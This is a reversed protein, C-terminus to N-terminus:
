YCNGTNPHSSFTTSRNMNSGLAMYRIDEGLDGPNLGGGGAWTGQTRPLHIGAAALANLVFNTCNNSNLDYVVNSNQFHEMFQLIQFFQSNTLAFEISINYSRESDNHLQGASNPSTPYVASMPYFGVNRTINGSPKVQTLTLFTHGVFILGSGGLATWSQRTGPAPQDVCLTVKYQYNSGPLNDFCKNYDRINAIPNNGSELVIPDAPPLPPTGSGGTAPFVDDTYAAGDLFEFTAPHDPFFYTDCGAFYSWYEYDGTSPVYNYGSIEYCVTIFANPSQSSTSASPHRRYYLATDLRQLAKGKRVLYEKILNGRLDEVLVLGQFSKSGPHAEKFPVFRVIELTLSQQRRYALLFSSRNLPQLLGPNQNSTLWTVGDYALPVLLATTSKVPIQQAHAWLPQRRPLYQEISYKSKIGRARFQRLSDEYAREVLKVFENKGNVSSKEPSHEKKCSPLLYLLLVFVRIFRYVPQM